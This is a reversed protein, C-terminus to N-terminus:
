MIPLAPCSSGPSAPLPEPFGCALGRWEDTRPGFALAAAIALLIALGCASALAGFPSRVLPMIQRPKVAEPGFVPSSDLGPGRQPERQPETLAPLESQFHRVM